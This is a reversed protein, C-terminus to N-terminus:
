QQKYKDKLTCDGIESLLCSGEQEAEIEKRQWQLSNHFQQGTKLIQEIDSFEIEKPFNMTLSTNQNQSTVELTLQAYILNNFYQEQTQQKNLFAVTITLMMMFLIESLIVYARKIKQEFIKFYIQVIVFILFQQVYKEQKQLFGFIFNQNQSKVFIKSSSQDQNSLSFFYSIIMFIGFTTLFRGAVVIQKLSLIGIQQQLLVSYSLFSQIPMLILPLQIGISAQLYKILFNAINNSIPSPILECDQKESEQYGEICDCTNTQNNLQRTKSKCSTCSNQSGPKSCTSCNIHCPVTEDYQQCTTSNRCIICYKPCTQLCQNDSNAYKGNACFTCIGQHLFYGQDCVVCEPSNQSVSQCNKQQPRLICIRQLINYYYSSNECTCILQSNKIQCSSLCQGNADCYNKCTSKCKQCNYLNDNVYQCNTQLPFETQCLNNYLFQQTSTCCQTQSPGVCINCSSDCPSCIFINRISDQAKFYGDPCQSICADNFSIQKDNDTQIGSIGYLTNNLDTGLTFNKYIWCTYEINNIKQNFQSYNAQSTVFYTKLQSFIRYYLDPKPQYQERPYSIYNIDLEMPLQSFLFTFNFSNSSNAIPLTNIYFPSSNEQSFGTLFSHAILGQTSNSFSDNYSYLNSINLFSKNIINIQKIKVNQLCIEALKVCIKGFSILYNKQFPCSEIQQLLITSKQGDICADQITVNNNWISTYHQAYCNHLFQISLLIYSITTLFINM